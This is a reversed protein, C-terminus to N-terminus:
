IIKKQKEVERGAIIEDYTTVGKWILKIHYTLLITLLITVLGNIVM